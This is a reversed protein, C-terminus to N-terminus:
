SPYPAKASINSGNTQIRMKCHKLRGLINTPGAFASQRTRLLELMKISLRLKLRPNIDWELDDNQLIEDSEKEGESAAGSEDSLGFPDINELTPSDPPKAKETLTHDVKQM